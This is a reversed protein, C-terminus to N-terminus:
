VGGARKYADRAEIGAEESSAYRCRGREAICLNGLAIGEQLASGIRRSSVTAELSSRRASDWDGLAIYASALSGLCQALALSDPKTRLVTALATLKDIGEKARNMRFLAVAEYVRLIAFELEHSPEFSALSAISKTARDLSESDRFSLMLARLAQAELRPRYSDAAVPLTALVSDVLELSESPHGNLNLLEACEIAAEIHSLGPSPGRSATALDRLSAAQRLLELTM